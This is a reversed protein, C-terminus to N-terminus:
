HACGSMSLKSACDEDIREITKQELLAVINCAHELPPFNAEKAAVALTIFCIQLTDNSFYVFLDAIKQRWFAKYMQCAVVAVIDVNSSSGNMAFKENSPAYRNLLQDNSFSAKENYLRVAKQWYLV